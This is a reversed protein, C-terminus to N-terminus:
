KAPKVAAARVFKISGKRSEFRVLHVPATLAQVVMVDRAPEDVRYTVILEKRTADLSTIEVAYGGTPQTGLFVGVVMERKFDVVPVPASPAHVKWLARWDAASRITVERPEEIQSQIGRYVTQFGLPGAFALLLAVSQLFLMTVPETTSEITAWPPSLSDTAEPKLRFTLFQYEHQVDRSAM